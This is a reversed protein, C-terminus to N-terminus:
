ALAQQVVEALHSAMSGNSTVVDAGAQRASELLAENRHDGYAITRIHQLMPERKLSRIAADADGMKTTLDIVVLFPKIEAAKRALESSNDLRRVQYGLNELASTISVGLILNDFVHIAIPQTM